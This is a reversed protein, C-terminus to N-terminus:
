RDIGIMRRQAMCLCSAVVIMLASAPEPVAALIQYTTGSASTFDTTSLLMGAADRAEIGILEVTNGFQAAASAFGGDGLFETDANFGTLLELVFPQNAAGVFSNSVLTIDIPGPEGFFWRQPPAMGHTLEISAFANYDTITGTVRIIYKSNYGVATGGYQLTDEFRAISQVAYATPVDGTGNDYNYDPDFYTNDVMGQVSTRLFLYNAQATGSGSFTLDGSGGLVSVDHSSSASASVASGSNSSASDLATGTSQDGEIVVAESYLATANAQSVVTILLLVLLAILRPKDTM